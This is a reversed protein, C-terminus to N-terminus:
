LKRTQIVICLIGTPRNGLYIINTHDMDHIYICEWIHCVYRSRWNQEQSPDTLTRYNMPERLSLNPQCLIISAPDYLTVTRLSFHTDTYRSHLNSVGKVDIKKWLHRTGRWQYVIGIKRRYTHTIYSRYPKTELTLEESLMYFEKYAEEQLPLYKFASQLSCHSWFVQNHFFWPCGRHCGFHSFSSCMKFIAQLAKPM